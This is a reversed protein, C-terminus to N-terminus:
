RTAARVLNGLLAAVTLPGVGGPVPSLWGVRDAVGPGCDGVLKGAADVNTAVDVVIAEPSLEPGEILGPRGAATVILDAAQLHAALDATRSHAVTVTAHADTLVHAIAKGVLPSRGIVLARRGALALGHGELLWRVGIATCPRLVDEGLWLRGLNEPHGGEVDKAPDLSRWLAAQTLAPPLPTQLLIGHVEPAGSLAQLRAHAEAPTIAEPWHDFQLAGGLAEIRKALSRRYSAAGPDDGCAVVALTAVLGPAQRRLDGALRDITDTALQRGDLVRATM